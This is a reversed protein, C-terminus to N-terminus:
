RNNLYDFCKLYPTFLYQELDANAVKAFILCKYYFYLNLFTVGSPFGDPTIKHMNFLLVYKSTYFIYIKGQAGSRLSELLTQCNANLLQFDSGELQRCREAILDADCCTDKMYKFRGTSLSWDLIKPTVLRKYPYPCEYFGLKAEPPLM